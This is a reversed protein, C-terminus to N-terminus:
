GGGATDPAIMGGLFDVLGVTVARRVRPAHIPILVPFHEEDVRDDAVEPVADLSRVELPHVAVVRVRANVFEDVLVGVMVMPIAALDPGVHALQADGGGGGTDATAVRVDAQHNVLARVERGLITALHECGIEVTAAHIDVAELAPAAAVDALVGGVEHPRIIRPEAGDFNLGAGIAADVNEIPAVDSFAVFVVANVAGGSTDVFDGVAVGRTGLFGIERSEGVGLEDGELGAVVLPEHAHRAPFEAFAGASVVAQGSQGCKEALLEGGRGGWGFFQGRIPRQFM